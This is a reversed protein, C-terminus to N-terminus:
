WMGNEENTNMCIEMSEIQDVPHLHDRLEGHIKLLRLVDIKAYTQLQSLLEQLFERMRLLTSSLLDCELPHLLWISPDIHYGPCYPM